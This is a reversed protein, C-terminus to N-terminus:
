HWDPMCHPPAMYIAPRTEYSVAALVDCMKPFRGAQMYLLVFAKYLKPLVAAIFALLVGRVVDRVSLEIHYNISRHFTCTVHNDSILSPLLVSVYM